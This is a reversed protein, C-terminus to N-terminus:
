EGLPAVLRVEWAGLLTLPDIYDEGVRAGWDLHAAGAALRGLPAGATVRQGAVVERPDLDGYTTILGGHELSVWGVGAVMGAFRVTGPLAARVVEGPAAALDVGRHGPGYRTAPAEFPRVVAGPVPRQARGGATAGAPAAGAASGAVLGPLLVALVLLVGARSM